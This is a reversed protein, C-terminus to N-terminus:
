VYQNKMMDLIQKKTNGTELGKAVIMKTFAIKCQVESKELPDGTENMAAGPCKSNCWLCREHSGCEIYNQLKISRWEALSGPRDSSIKKHAIAPNDGDFIKIARITNDIKSPRIKPQWKNLSNRNGWVSDISEERVDAVELPLAPCPTIKGNPTMSMVSCGANCVSENKNLHRKGYNNSKDVFYPSGPVFALEAIQNIDLNLDIPGLNNDNGATLYGDISSRTGIIDILKKIDQFDSATKKMLPTKIHTRIGRRKLEELAALSKKHSGKIRTIEDHRQESSTYITIGVDDPYLSELKDLNKDNLLLGNTFIMVQFNRKKAEELIFFFDKHLFAEGGSLTIRFVGIKVLDDLLKITENRSILDTKRKNKDGKKHAAGPNYCHICAENCKYTIEWFFSFLYGAREIRSSAMSELSIYESSKEEECFPSSIKSPNITLKKYNRSEPAKSILIEHELFEDIINNVDDINNSYKKLIESKQLGSLVVDNMINVHFDEIFLLEHSIANGILAFEGNLDNYSRYSIWPPISLEHM